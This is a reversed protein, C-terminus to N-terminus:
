YKGRCRRARLRYANGFARFARWVVRWIAVSVPVAILPASVLGAIVGTLAGDMGAVAVIANAKRIEGLCSFLRHIVAVGVDSFIEATSGLFRATLLAERVVPLDSTGACVVAIFGGGGAQRGVTLIGSLGDYEADPYHRCIDEALEKQTRTALVPIDEERMRTIIAGSQEITKGACYV